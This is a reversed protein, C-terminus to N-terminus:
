IQTAILRVYVVLCPKGSSAEYSHCQMGFYSDADDKELYLNAKETTYAAADAVSFETYTDGSKKYYLFGSDYDYVENQAFYPIPTTEYPWTVTAVFDLSSNPAVTTSSTSVNVSFPYFDRIYAVPDDIGTLDISHGLISFSVIEVSFNVSVESNNEVVITKSFNPMGPKMKTLEITTNHYLEGTEKDKFDVDWSAVTGELTLSANSSFAFWAFINVGLTFLALLISIYKKRKLRKRLSAVVESNTQKDM